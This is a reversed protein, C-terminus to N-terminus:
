WKTESHLLGNSTGKKAVTVIRAARMQCKELAVKDIDSCDDCIICSYELKSRVFTQYIIELSNRDLDKSLKHMIDLYKSVTGVIDQVHYIWILKNNFTVGLHKHKIVEQM